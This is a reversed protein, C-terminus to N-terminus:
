TGRRPWSIHTRCLNCYGGDLEPALAPAVCWASDWAHREVQRSPGILSRHVDDTVHIRGNWVAVRLDLRTLRMVRQTALSLEPDRKAWERRIVRTNAVSQQLRELLDGWLGSMRPDLRPHVKSSGALWERVCEVAGACCWGATRPTLLAWTTGVCPSSLGTVVIGRGYPHLAVAARGRVTRGTITIEHVGQDGFQCEVPITQVWKTM